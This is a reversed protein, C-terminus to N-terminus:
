LTLNEGTLTKHLLGWISDPNRTKESERQLSYHSVLFYRAKKTDTQRRKKHLFSMPTHLRNMPPPPACVDSLINRWAGGGGGFFFFDQGFRQGFKGGFRGFKTRILYMPLNRKNPPLVTGGGGGVGRKMRRHFLIYMQRVPQSIGEELWQVHVQALVRVYRSLPLPQRGTSYM